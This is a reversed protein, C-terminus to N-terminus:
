KGEGNIIIDRVYATITKEHHSAMIRLEHFDKVTLDLTFIHKKKTAHETNETKKVNQETGANEM